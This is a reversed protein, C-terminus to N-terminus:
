KGSIFRQYEPDNGFAASLVADRHQHSARLEQIREEKSMAGRIPTNPLLEPIASFREVIRVGDAASDDDEILLLIAQGEPPPGYVRGRFEVVRRHESYRIQDKGLRSASSWREEDPDRRGSDAEWDARVADAAEFSGHLWAMTARRSLRPLIGTNILLIGVLSHLLQSGMSRLARDASASRRWLVVAGVRGGGPSHDTFWSSSMGSGDTAISATGM